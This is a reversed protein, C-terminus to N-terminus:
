ERWRTRMFHLVGVASGKFNPYGIALVVAAVVTSVAIQIWLNWDTYVQLVVLAGVLVLAVATYANLWVILWDAEGPRYFVAGCHPCDLYMERRSKFVQGQRCAPCVLRLGYWVAQLFARM